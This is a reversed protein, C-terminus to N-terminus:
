GPEIASIRYGADTNTLVLVRRQEGRPSTTAVQGGASDVVSRAALTDVVAVRTGGAQAAGLVQVSVIDHRGDVVRWGRDVLGDIMVADTAAAASGPANVLDLLELRGSSFALSRVAALGHVAVAPDQSGLQAAVAVPIGRNDTGNAAQGSPVLEVGNRAEQASGSGGAPEGFGALGTFPGGPGFAGATWIVGAVV